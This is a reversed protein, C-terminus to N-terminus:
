ASLVDVWPAIALGLMDYGQADPHTHDYLFLSQNSSGDANVFYGTLDLYWVQQGDALPSILQNVQTIEQRMVSDAEVQLGPLLGLSLVKTTPFEVRLTQVVATIGAAIDSPTAGESLDNVGVMLVVVKPSIGNLNGHELRWLVNETTDGAIGANLSGLPAFFQNWAPTGAKGLWSQTISDGLFLANAGGQAAQSSIQAFDQPFWPQVSPVPVLTVPVGTHIEFYQAQAMLTATLQERTVQGTALESTFFQTASTTLPIKLDQSVESDVFQTQHEGSMSLMTALEGLSTGSNLQSTAWAISSADAARGLIAQYAADIWDSATGGANAYFEDSGILSAVVTEDRM